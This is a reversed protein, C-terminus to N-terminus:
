KGKGVNGWHTLRTVNNLRSDSAEGGTENANLSGLLISIKATYEPLNEQRFIAIHAQGCFLTVDELAM